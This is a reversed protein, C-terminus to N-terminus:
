CFLSKILKLTESSYCEEDFIEDSDDFYYDEDNVFQDPECFDYFDSADDYSFMLPLNLEKSLCEEMFYQIDHPDIRGIFGDFDFNLVKELLNINMCATKCQNEDSVELSFASVTKGDKFLLVGYNNEYFHTYHLIYNEKLRKSLAKIREVSKVNEDNSCLFSYNGHNYIGRGALFIFMVKQKCQSYPLFEVDFVDAFEVGLNKSGSNLVHISSRPQFSKAINLLDFTYYKANYKESNNAIDKYSLAFSIKTESSLKELIDDLEQCDKDSFCDELDVGIIEGILAPNNSVKVTLDNDVVSLVYEALKEGAHYATLSFSDNDFMSVLVYKIKRSYFGKNIVEPVEDPTFFDSFISIVKNFIIFFDADLSDDLGWKKIIFDAKFLDFMSLNNKFDVKKTCLYERLCKFAEGRDIDFLHVSINKM